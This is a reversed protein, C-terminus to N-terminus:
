VLRVADRARRPKGFLAFAGTALATTGYQGLRTSLLRQGTASRGFADASRMFSSLPGTGAITGRTAQGAKLARAGQAARSLWGAFPLFTAGFATIDAAVRGATGEPQAAAQIPKFLDSVGRATNTDFAFDFGIAPLEALGQAFSVGGSLIGEGIDTAVDV